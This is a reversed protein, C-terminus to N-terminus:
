LKQNCREVGWENVVNVIISMKRLARMRLECILSVQARVRESQCESWFSLFLDLYFTEFDTFTHTNKKTKKKM